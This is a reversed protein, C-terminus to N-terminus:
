SYSPQWIRVLPHSFVVSHTTEWLVGYDSFLLHSVVWSAPPAVYCPTVQEYWTQTTVVKM